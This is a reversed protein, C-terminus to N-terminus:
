RGWYFTVYVIITIVYVGAYLAILSSILGIIAFFTIM